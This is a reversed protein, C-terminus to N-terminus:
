NKKTKGATVCLIVAIFMLICGILEKKSLTVDLILFGGIVSFLSELSMILSAVNADLTKQSYAQLTVAVAASLLGVYLLPILASKYANLDFSEKFIITLILSMIFTFMSSSFSIEISDIDQCYKDLIIIQLCLCISAFLSFLDAITITFSVLDCLLVLGALAFVLSILVQSNIKKKYLLFNVLPVEMIYMSTIFATKGPENALAAIQHFYSFTTLIIGMLFGYKLTKKINNSKKKRILLVILLAITALLNKITVFSFPAVYEAGMSQLSYSFGYIMAVILMLLEDIHERM